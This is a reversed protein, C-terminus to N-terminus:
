ESRCSRRIAKSHPNKAGSATRSAVPRHIGDHGACDSLAGVLDSDTHCEAGAGPVIWRIISPSAAPEENNSDSGPSQEDRNRRSTCPRQEELKPGRIDRGAKGRHHHQIRPRRM